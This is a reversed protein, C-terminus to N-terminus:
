DEPPFIENMEEPSLEGESLVPSSKLSEISSKLERAMKNIQAWHIDKQPLMSEASIFAQFAIKVVMSATISDGREDQAKTQASPEGSSLHSPANQKDWKFKTARGSKTKEIWGWYEEGVNPPTKTQWLHTAADGEFVVTYWIGYKDSELKDNLFDNETVIRVKHWQPKDM